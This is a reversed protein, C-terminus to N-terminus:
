ANGFSRMNPHGGTKDPHGFTLIIKSNKITPNYKKNAQTAAQSIKNGDPRSVTVRAICAARLRKPAFIDVNSVCTLRLFVTNALRHLQRHHFESM